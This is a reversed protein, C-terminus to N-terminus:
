ESRGSYVREMELGSTTSPSWVQSENKPNMKNYYIKNGICTQKQQIQKLKETSLWTIPQFFM